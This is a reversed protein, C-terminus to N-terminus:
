AESCPEMPTLSIKGGELSVENTVFAPTVYDLLKDAPIESFDEISQASIGVVIKNKTFNFVRLNENVHSKESTIPNRDDLYNIFINGSALFVLSVSTLTMFAGFYSKYVM